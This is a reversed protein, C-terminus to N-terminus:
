RSNFNRIAEARDVLKAATDGNLKVALLLEKGKSKAPHFVWAGSPDAVWDFNPIGEHGNLFLGDKNQLLQHASKNTRM